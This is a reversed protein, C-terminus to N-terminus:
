SPELAVAKLSYYNVGCPHKPPGVQVIVGYQIKRSDEETPGVISETAQRQLGTVLLVISKPFVSVM